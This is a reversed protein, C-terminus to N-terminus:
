SGHSTACHARSRCRHRTRKTSAAGHTPSSPTRSQRACLARRCLAARLGCRTIVLSRGPPPRARHPEHAPHRRGTRRHDPRAPAQQVLSPSYLSMGQLRDFQGSPSAMTYMWDLGTSLVMSSSELLSPSTSLGTVFALRYFTRTIHWAPEDPIEPAYTFLGEEMDSASPKGLPRRADLIRRPIMVINERDTAVLLGKTAVGLITRTTATMQVGYPLLFSHAFALPTAYSTVNGGTGTVLSSVDPTQEATPEYLEISVLRHTYGQKTEAFWPPANAPTPQPLSGEKTQNTAYQVTIWNEVFTTHLGESIEVDPVRLHYLVSGSVTDLLYVNAAQDAATYTTVLRGHPNLYKYLVSRDGLVRGLSAIHDTPLDHMSVVQEGDGLRWQWTPVAYFTGKEAPRLVHGRLADQALVPLHLKPLETAIRALASPAPPYVTMTEDCVAGLTRMDGADMALPLVVLGRIPKPCLLAGDDLGNAFEGTLPNLEYVRTQTAEGPETTQAVVAVVPPVPAGGLLTGTPRTQVIHTVNVTPEAAGEGAGYGLLSRQWLLASGDLTMELGYVKGRKSAAVVVKRFGFPDHALRALAEDPVERPAIISANTGEVRAGGAVPQRFVPTEDKHTDLLLRSVWEIGGREAIVWEAVVGPLKALLVLHRAIRHGFSERELAVLPATDAHRAHRLAVASKGLAADPLSVMLTKPDEALGEELVWHHEGDQVLHVAGSSTVLAIRVMLQVPSVKGVEFPAALVNGHLDHDYQFSMGTIQGRDHGTRADAWFVHQNLMKQALTFYVRLIYAHGQRDLVGDYVADPAPEDFEWASHLRGDEDVRVVEAAHDARRAVFFGRDGLGVDQVGVFANASRAKVRQLTKRPNADDIRVAHVARDTGLFALHPGGTQVHLGVPIHSRKAWPLLVMGTPGEALDMDVNHTALLEGRQSLQYIRPRWAKGTAAAAIVYMFEGSPLTAVVRVKDVGEEPAWQWSVHGVRLRRVEHANTVVFTDDVLGSAHVAPGEVDPADTENHLRTEWLLIGTKGVVARAM